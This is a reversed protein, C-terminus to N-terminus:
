ITSRGFVLAAVAGESKRGMESCFQGMFIAVLASVLQSCCCIELRMSRSWVPKMQPREIESFKMRAVLSTCHQWRRFAGVSTSFSSKALAKSETEQLLKNVMM